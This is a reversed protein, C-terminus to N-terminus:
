LSAVPSLPPRSRREHVLSPLPARQSPRPAATTVKTTRLMWRSEGLVVGRLERLLVGLDDGVRRRSRFPFGNQSLSASRLERLLVGALSLPFGRSSM